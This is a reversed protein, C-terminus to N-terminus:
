IIKILKKNKLLMKEIIKRHKEVNELCDKKIRLYLKRVSEENEQIRILGEKITGGLRVSYCIKQPDAYILKDTKEDIWFPFIKCFAGRQDGLKCGKGKELFVCENNKKCKLTLRYRKDKVKVTSNKWWEEEDKIEEETYEDPEAFDELKYGLAIIQNIDNITLPAKPDACCSEQKQSCEVCISSTFLKHSIQLKLM